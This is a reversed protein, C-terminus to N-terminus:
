IPSDCKAMVATARVKTKKKKFREMVKASGDLRSFGTCAVSVMLLVISAALEVTGLGNWSYLTSHRRLRIEGVSTGNSQM